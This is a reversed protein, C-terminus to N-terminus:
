VVAWCYLGRGEARAQRALAALRDAQDALGEPDAMGFFEEIGAWQPAVRDLHERGTEALLDRAEDDLRTVTREGDDGMAILDDEFEAAEEEGVLLEFLAGLQVSPEFDADVAPLAEGEDPDAPGGVWELTRAAEEDTAAIFYTILM